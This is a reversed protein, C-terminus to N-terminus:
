RDPCEPDNARLADRLSQQQVQNMQGYPLGYCRQAAADLTNTDIENSPAEHNTDTM